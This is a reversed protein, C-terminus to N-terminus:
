CAFVYFWKEYHGTKNSGAYKILHMDRLIYLECEVSRHNLGIM